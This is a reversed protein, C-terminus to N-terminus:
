NGEGARHPETRVLIGGGAAAEFTLRGFIVAGSPDKLWGRLFAVADASMEATYEGTRRGTRRATHAGSRGSQRQGRPGGVPRFQVGAKMLWYRASSASVGVKRGVTHVSDGAEYLRKGKGIWDPFQGDQAAPEDRARQAERINRIRREVPGGMGGVSNIKYVRPLRDAIAEATKWHVLDEAAETRNSIVAYSGRKSADNIIQKAKALRGWFDTMM